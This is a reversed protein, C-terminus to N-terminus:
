LQQPRFNDPRLTVIQRLRYKGRTVCCDDFVSSPGALSPESIGLTDRERKRDRDWIKIIYLALFCSRDNGHVVTRQLNNMVAIPRKLAV